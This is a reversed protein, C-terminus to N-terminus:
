SKERGTEFAELEKADQAVKSGSGCGALVVCLLMASVALSCMKRIM